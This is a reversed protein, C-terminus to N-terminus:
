NKQNMSKSIVKSDKKVGNKKAVDRALQEGEDDRSRKQRPLDELDNAMDGPHANGQQHDIGQDKDIKQLHDSETALGGVDLFASCGARM